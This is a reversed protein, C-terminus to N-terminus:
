QYSLLLAEDLESHIFFTNFDLGTLLGLITLLEIDVPWNPAAAAAPLILVTDPDDILSHFLCIYNGVVRCQLRKVTNKKSM